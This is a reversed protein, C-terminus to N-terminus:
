TPPLPLAPLYSTLKMQRVRAMRARMEATHSKPSLERETRSHPSKSRGRRSMDTSEKPHQGDRPAQSGNSTTEAVNVGSILNETSVSGADGLNRTAATSLGTVERFYEASLPVKTTLGLSSVDLKPITESAIQMPSFATEEMELDNPYSPDEVTSVGFVDYRPSLKMRETQEQSMTTTRTSSRVNFLTRDSALKTVAVSNKWAGVNVTKM